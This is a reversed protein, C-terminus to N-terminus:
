ARASQHAHLFETIEQDASFLAPVGGTHWFILPRKADIVGTALDHILGALAKGTYNPDLFIGETEAALRVAELSAQTPQQYGAGVHSLDNIIDDASLRLPWGMLEALQNGFRASRAHLPERWIVPAVGRVQVDWGIARCALVMGAQSGSAASLTISIPDLGADDVQQKLELLGRLGAAAGLMQSRDPRVRYLRIGRQAYEAVVRDCHLDMEKEYDAAPLYHIDAGTLAVLLLNGRLVPPAAEKNIIIVPLLGVKRALAALQRAHNSQEGIAILVGQCGQAIADALTYELQRVKNGGLAPGSQDDRKVWLEAAGIAQALHPCAELPTPWNGLKIRPLDTFSARLSPPLLQALNDQPSNMVNELAGVLLPM